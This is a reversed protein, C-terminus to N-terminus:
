LSKEKKMVMFLSSGFFGKRLIKEEIKVLQYCFNNVFDSPVEVDSVINDTDIWGFRMGIRQTFRIGFVLPALVWTWYSHYTIKFLDKPLYQRFSQITFRRKGGVALDHTGYFADFANNNSIFIGDEKLLHFINYFASKMQETELCYFVDNCVIVDFKKPTNLDNLNDINLRQVDLNRAKCFQIAAESYDIGQINKYANKRLFSLLGGTGCGVDLINIDLNNAYKKQIESLVKEHLVRYWWLKEEAEYMMKYEQESSNLM